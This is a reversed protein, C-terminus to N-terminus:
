GYRRSEGRGIWLSSVGLRDKNKARTDKKWVGVVRFGM